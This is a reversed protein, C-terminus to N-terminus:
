KLPVVRQPITDKSRFSILLLVSRSGCLALLGNRALTASSKKVRKGSGRKPVTILGRAV